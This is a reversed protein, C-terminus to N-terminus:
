NPDSMADRAIGRQVASLSAPTLPIVACGDFCPDIVDPDDYSPGFLLIVKTGPPVVQPKANGPSPMEMRPIQRQLIVDSDHNAHNKLSLLIRFSPQNRDRAHNADPSDPGIAEAIAAFHHDRALIELPFADVDGIEALKRGGSHLDLATKAMLPAIEEVKDCQRWRTLCALNMDLLGGALRSNARPTFEAEILRCGTCIPAKWATYEPDDVPMEGPDRFDFGTTGEAIAVLVDGDHIRSDLTSPSMETKADFGKAWIVGNKVTIGAYIAAPRGGLLSYLRRQWPSYEHPKTRFRLGTKTETQFYTPYTHSADLLVIEYRCREASCSGEYWGWKGWRYMLRQADAWTSKGMQIERIDALLREARWRLVYQQIRVVAFLCVIPALIAICAIRTWRGWRVRSAM